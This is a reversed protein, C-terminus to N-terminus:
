RSAARRRLAFPALLALLVLVADPSTNGVQSSLSCGPVEASYVSSGSLTTVAQTTIDVRYTGGRENLVMLAGNDIWISAIFVWQVDGEIADSVEVEYIQQQWLRQDTNPDRAEIIGGEDYGAVFKVGEFVL